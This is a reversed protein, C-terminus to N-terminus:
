RFASWGPISCSVGQRIQRRDPRHRGGAPVGGVRRHRIAPRRCQLVHRARDGVTQRFYIVVIALIAGLQILIAFSKWFSDEGLDFFREALLLHGTSSVPLFETVGEVIGLIVARVADTMMSWTRQKSQNRRSFGPEERKNAGHGCDCFAFVRPSAEARGSLYNPAGAANATSRKTLRRSMDLPQM